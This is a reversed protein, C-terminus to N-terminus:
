PFPSNMWKGNLKELVEYQGPRTPYKDQGSTIHTSKVLYKGEYAYLMQDSLDIVIIQDLDPEPPLPPASGLAFHKDMESWFGHDSDALITSFDQEYQELVPTLASILMDRTDEWQSATHNHYEGAELIGPMIQDVSALTPEFKPTMNLSEYHFQIKQSESALERMQRYVSIKRQVEAKTQISMLIENCLALARPDKSSISSSAWSKQLADYASRAM